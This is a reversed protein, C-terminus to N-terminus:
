AARCFSALYDHTVLHFDQGTDVQSFSSDVTSGYPDSM